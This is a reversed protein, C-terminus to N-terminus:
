IMLRMAYDNMFFGEGIDINEEGTVIFGLREYFKRAKNNRNVNLELSTAGLSRITNIIYELLLKGTGTGQQLPLVYIKHLRYVASDLEKRAYSAFGVPINEDIVLIFNHKLTVLQNQLSAPSYILELMYKLQEPSLIDRYADHWIRCALDHIVHLDSLGANKISRM